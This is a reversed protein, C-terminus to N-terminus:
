DLWDDYADMLIALKARTKASDLGVVFYAVYLDNLAEDVRAQNVHSQEAKELADDLTPKPPDCWDPHAKKLHKIYCNGAVMEGCIHCPERPYTYGKKM